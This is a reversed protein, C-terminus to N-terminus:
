RFCRRYVILQLYVHGTNSASMCLWLGHPQSQSYSRQLFEDDVNQCVIRGPKCRLAQGRTLRATRRQSLLQQLPTCCLHCAETQSTCPVVTLLFMKCTSSRCSCHGCLLIPWGGPFTPATTIVPPSMESFLLECPLFPGDEPCAPGSMMVAMSLSQPWPYYRISQSTCLPSWFLAMCAANSLSKFANAHASAHVDMLGILHESYSTGGSKSQPVEKVLDSIHVQLLLLILTAIRM